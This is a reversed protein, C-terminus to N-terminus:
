AYEGGVEIGYHGGWAVDTEAQQIADTKCRFRADGIQQTTRRQELHRREADYLLQLVHLGIAACLALQALMRISTICEVDRLEGSKCLGDTWSQLQDDNTVIAVARGAESTALAAAVILRDVEDQHEVEWHDPEPADVTAFAPADFATPSLQAYGYPHRNGGCIERERQARSLLMRRYGACGHAAILLDFAMEDTMSAPSSADNVIANAGRAVLSLHSTDPLLDEPQGTPTTCRRDAACPGFICEPM